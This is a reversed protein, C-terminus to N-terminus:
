RSVSEIVCGDMPRALFRAAKGKGTVEVEFKFAKGIKRLRPGVVLRGKVIIDLTAALAKLEKGTAGGSRMALMAFKAEREAYNQAEACQCKLPAIKHDLLSMQKTPMEIAEVSRWGGNNHFQIEMQEHKARKKTKVDDAFAKLAAKLKVKGDIKKRLLRADEDREEQEKAIERLLRRATARHINNGDADTIKKHHIVTRDGARGILVVDRKYGRATLSAIHIAEEEDAYPKGDVYCANWFFQSPGSARVKFHRGPEAIDGLVRKADVIAAELTRQM